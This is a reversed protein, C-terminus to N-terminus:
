PVKREILWKGVVKKIEIEEDEAAEAIPVGHKGELWKGPEYQFHMGFTKVGGPSFALRAIIESLANFGAASKGPVRFLLAEGVEFITAALPELETPDFIGKLGRPDECLRAARIPVAAALAPVIPHRARRIDAADSM